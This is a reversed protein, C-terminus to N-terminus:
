PCQMLETLAQKLDDQSRIEGDAVLDRVATVMHDRQPQNQECLARNAQQFRQGVRYKLARESLSQGKFPEPHAMERMILAGDIVGSLYALCRESASGEDCYSWDPGQASAPACLVLALLLGKAHKM